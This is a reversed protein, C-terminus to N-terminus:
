AFKADTFDGSVDGAQLNLLQQSKPNFVIMGVYVPDPDPTDPRM